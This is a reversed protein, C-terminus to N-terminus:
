LVVFIFRECINSSHMGTAATKNHAPSSISRFFPPVAVTGVAGGVFVATLERRDFAM